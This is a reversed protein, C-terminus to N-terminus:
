ASKAKIVNRVGLVAEMERIAKLWPGKGNEVQSVAAISIGARQALETITLRKRIRAEKLKRFDYKM